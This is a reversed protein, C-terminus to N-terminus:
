DEFLFLTSSGRASFRSMQGNSYTLISFDGIRIANCDIDGKLDKLIQNIYKTTVYM